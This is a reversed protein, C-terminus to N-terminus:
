GDQQKIRRAIEPVGDKHVLYALVKLKVYDGHFFYYGKHQGIWATRWSDKVLFWDQGKIERFGIFHLLHDDTTSGDNFRLERAHQDINKAAIDFPPVICVDESHLRGPENNDADFVASYGNKLAQRLSKYFVDLPVNYYNNFHKWNDPVKLEVFQYFPAYEFSTVLLYDDWKLDVVEKAFSQPTFIKGKYEFLQPPVGLHKYLIQRAKQLVLEEDWLQLAKVDSMLQELEADMENHDFVNQGPERGPYVEFPVIGYQKVMEIVGSFLDGAAFRSVGKTRIFERAKEVYVHFFPHMMALRVPERGLRQMESEIFSCTAFSWCASTTDQNLPPLHKVPCFHEISHPKSLKTLYAKASEELTQAAAFNVLLILIFSQFISRKM